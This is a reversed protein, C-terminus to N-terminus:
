PTDQTAHANPTRQDPQQAVTGAPEQSMLWEYGANGISIAYFFLTGDMLSHYGIGGGRTNFDIFNVGFVDLSRAFLGLVACITGLWYSCIVIYKRM